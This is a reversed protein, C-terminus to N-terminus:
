VRDAAASVLIEGTGGSGLDGCFRRVQTAIPLFRSFPPGLRQLDKEILHLFLLRHVGCDQFTALMDAPLRDLVLTGRRLALGPMAGARGKVAITGALMRSGCYAGVDGGVLILGRRMRDGTRDGANGHILLHGGRMGQMNGAQAAGTFHGTDGAVELMGGRMECGAYEGANGRISVTGGRLGHGAFNGCNGDVTIRGSQMGKGVNDLRARGGHLVLHDSDSGSISFCDGLRASGAMPLNGIASENMGRLREPSLSGVDLASSCHPLAELIRANM